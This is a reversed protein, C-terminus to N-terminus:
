SALDSRAHRSSFDADAGRPAKSLVEVLKAQLHAPTFPKLLYADVGLKTALAVNATKRDATVMLFRTHSLSEDSRVARLLQLGGFAGMNLDSIVLEHRKARLMQLAENGDLTQGVDEFGIKRVLRTILDIMLQHDDVVLIPAAYDLLRQVNPGGYFHNPPYM